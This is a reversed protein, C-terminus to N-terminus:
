TTQTPTSIAHGAVATTVPSKTVVMWSFPNGTIIAFEVSVDSAAFM